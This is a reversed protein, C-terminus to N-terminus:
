KMKVPVQVEMVMSANIDLPPELVLFVERFAGNIEYKNMAIWQSIAAYAIGGTTLSGFHIISAMTEVHPLDYRQLCLGDSIQLTQPANRGVYFGLEWRLGQPDFGFNHALCAAYNREPIDVEHICDYCHMFNQIFSERNPSVDEFALYSQQAVPKVVIPQTTPTYGQELLQLRAEVLNLRAQEEELRQKIEERKSELMSRIDSNSVHNTLMQQVENLSLGLNKLAMIRNLDALQQIEYYRYGNQADTYSPKFLDIEDYYRLQSAPIQAIVAFDGIKFM